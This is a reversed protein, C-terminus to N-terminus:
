LLEYYVGNATIGQKSVLSEDKAAFYEHFSIMMNKFEAYDIRQDNNEDFKKVFDEWEEPQIKRKSTISNCMASQVLNIPISGIHELDDGLDFLDFAHKLYLDSIM